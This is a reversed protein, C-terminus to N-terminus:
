WVSPNSNSSSSYTFQKTTKVVAHLAASTAICHTCHTCSAKGGLLVICLMLSMPSHVAKDGYKWILTILSMLYWAKILMGNCILFIGTTISDNSAPAQCSITRHLRRDQERSSYLDKVICDAVLQPIHDFHGDIAWLQTCSYAVCCGTPYPLTVSSWYTTLYNMKQSWLLCVSEEHKM